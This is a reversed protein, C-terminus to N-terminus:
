YAAPAPQNRRLDIVTKNLYPVWAILLIVGIIMISIMSYYDMSFRIQAQVDASRYLLGTAAKTARDAPLGKAMLGAKYLGLKSSVLPDLSTLKDLFRNYHRSKDYLQFYNILAISSCFGTFRFFVGTASATSGLHAPVASICFIILPAMLMGAGMGQTILPIIFTDADAMTAFLFNMWLHFVLLLGFGILWIWRMKVNTIIMRSSVLVGIVIGAINAMLIYSLHTPDM